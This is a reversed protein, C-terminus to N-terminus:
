QTSMYSPVLSGSVVSAAARPLGQDLSKNILNSLIPALTTVNIKLINTPINDWGVSNSNKLNKIIKTIEHMSTQHFSDLELIQDGLYSEFATLYNNINDSM